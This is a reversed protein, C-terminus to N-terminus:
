TRILPTFCQALAEARPRAVVAVLACDWSLEILVARVFSPFHM